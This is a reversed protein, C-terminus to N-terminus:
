ASGEKASVSKSMLLATAPEIHKYYNEVKEAVEFGHKKYMNIATEDGEQVHLEINDISDSETANKVVDELMQHGIGIGRYAPLVALTAIYVKKGEVRSCLAGVTVDNYLAIRTYKEGALRFQDYTEQSYHTPLSVSNILKIQEYIKDTLPTFAVEKPVGM